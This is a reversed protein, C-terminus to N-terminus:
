KMWGVRLERASSSVRAGSLPAMAAKEGEPEGYVGGSVEVVAGEDRLELGTVVGADAVEDEGGLGFVGGGAGEWFEEGDVVEEAVRRQSDPLLSGLGTRTSPPLVDLHWRGLGRRSM